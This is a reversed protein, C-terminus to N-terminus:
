SAAQDSSRMQGNKRSSGLDLHAVLPDPTLFRSLHPDYLRGKMNVLGLEADDEHGTFGLSSTTPFSASPPSGWAPDRRAGFADYSRREVM